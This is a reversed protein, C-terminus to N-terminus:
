TLSKKMSKPNHKSAEKGVLMKNRQKKWKRQNEHGHVLALTKEMNPRCAENKKEVKKHVRKNGNKM